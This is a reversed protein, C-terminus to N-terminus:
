KNINCFEIIAEEIKKQTKGTNKRDSSQIDIIKSVLEAPLDPYKESRIKEIATKLFDRNETENM